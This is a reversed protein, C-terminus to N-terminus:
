NQERSKHKCLTTQQQLKLQFLTGLIAPRKRKLSNADIKKKSKKDLTQEFQNWFSCKASM